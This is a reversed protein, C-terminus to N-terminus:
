WDYDSAKDYSFNNSEKLCKKSCFEGEPLTLWCQHRALELASIKDSASVTIHKQCNDCFVTIMTDTIM